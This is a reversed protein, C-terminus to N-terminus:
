ELTVEDCWLEQNGSLWLLQEKEAPASAELTEEDVESASVKPANGSTEPTSAEVAEMPEEKAEDSLVSVKQLNWGGLLCVCLCGLFFRKKKM